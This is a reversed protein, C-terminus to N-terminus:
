TLALRVAEDFRRWPAGKFVDIPPRNGRSMHPRVWNYDLVLLRVWHLIHKLACRLSCPFYKDFSRAGDKLTGNWREVYNRIGGSVVDHPIGLRKLAWPYWCGEDTVVLKPYSGYERKIAQFFSIAMLVNRVQTVAVYVIARTVPDIAVWIYCERRGEMLPTEDVVIVDPLQGHRFMGAMATGFKQMWNWVAVHSRRCRHALMDRVRRLSAGCVYLFLAWLVVGTPTRRRRVVGKEKLLGILGGTGDAEPM